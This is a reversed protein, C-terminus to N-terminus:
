VIKGIKVLFSFFIPFFFYDTHANVWRVNGGVIIISILAIGFRM